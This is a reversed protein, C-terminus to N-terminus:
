SYGFGKVVDADGMENVDLEVSFYFVALILFFLNLSSNCNAWLNCGVENLPKMLYALYEVEV